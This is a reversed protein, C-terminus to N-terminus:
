PGRREPIRSALSQERLMSQTEQEQGDVDEKITVTIGSDSSENITVTKGNETFSIARSTATGSRYSANPQRGQRGTM